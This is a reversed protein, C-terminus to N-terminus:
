DVFNPVNLKAAGALHPCPKPLALVPSVLVSPALVPPVLVSPALVPSVLVSPALVPSV